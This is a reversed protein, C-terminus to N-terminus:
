VGQLSVLIGKEWTNEDVYETAFGNVRVIESL